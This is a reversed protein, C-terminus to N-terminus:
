GSQGAQGSQGSKGAQGAKGAPGSSASDASGTPDDRAPGGSAPDADGTPAGGTPAGDAPGEGGDAPGEGGDAPGEGGDAPGEGGDAPGEGGDAPGEGGDAPDAASDAPDAAGGTPNDNTPGTGGHNPDPGITLPLSPDASWEELSGDYLAVDTRGAAALALALAAASIGGGCYLWLPRPDNLLEALVPRLQDPTLFRGDPANLRRAPLNGSGPLHGRRSYRTPVDGRFAEPSLACQVSAEADGALWSELDDRTIWRGDKPRPTLGRPAASVTEAADPHAAGPHPKAIARGPYTADPSLPAASPSPHTAAPGPHEATPSTSPSPASEIPLGAARWAPLGGNLVATPLGLWDLLYWLRAAWIGGARDYVVVPTGDTLGLASLAETLAEPTPRAFHYPATPDSFTTLLDAHHSGPIHAAQWGALGSTARHDGDFTPSPLDVTADLILLTGARVALEEPTILPATM